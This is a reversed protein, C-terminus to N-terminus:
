SRCKFCKYKSKLKHKCESETLESGEWCHMTHMEIISTSMYDFLLVIFPELMRGTGECNLLWFLLQTKNFVIFCSCITSFLLGDHLIVLM